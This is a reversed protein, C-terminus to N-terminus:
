VVTVPRSLGAKVEAEIRDRQRTRFNAGTFPVWLASEGLVSVLHGGYGEGIESEDLNTTLITTLASQTRHRILGELAPMAISRRATAERGIDDIVLVDAHTVRAIFWETAERAAEGGGFTDSYSDLLESFTTMYGNVGNAVLQKLVMAAVMTKGSGRTQGYLLLGLGAALNAEVRDLYSWVPDISGRLGEGDAWSLRQLALGIGAHLFWRHLKVQDSCPCQYDSVETRDRDTDELDTYWRFTEAGRCTICRALSTPASPWRAALANAEATKLSRVGAPLDLLQALPLQNM